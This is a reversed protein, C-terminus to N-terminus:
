KKENYLVRHSKKSVKLPFLNPRRYPLFGTPGDRSLLAQHAAGLGGGIVLGLGGAAGVDPQQPVLHPLPVVRPQEDDHPLVVEPNENLIIHVPNNGQEHARNVDPSDNDEETDTDEEGAHESEGDQEEPVPDNIDNQEEFVANNEQVCYFV